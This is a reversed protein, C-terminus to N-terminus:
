ALNVLVPQEICNNERMVLHYMAMYRFEHLPWTPAGPVKSQEDWRRLRVLDHFMPHAEFQFAEDMCLPGGQHELNEKVADTLSLYYDPHKYILYRKALVHNQVLAVIRESFGHMALFQAGVQEHNIVRIDDTDSVYRTVNCFHGIDHLLAALVMEEDKTEHMAITATQLLHELFSVPGCHYRKNGFREVIGFVANVSDNISILSM